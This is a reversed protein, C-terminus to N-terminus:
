NSLDPGAGRRRRLPRQGSGMDGWSRASHAEKPPHSPLLRSAVFLQTCQISLSLPPLLTAGRLMGPRTVSAPAGAAAPFAAVPKHPPAPARVRAARLSETGNLFTPDGGQRAEQPGRPWPRALAM